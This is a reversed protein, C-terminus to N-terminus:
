KEFGFLTRWLFFNAFCQGPGLLVHYSSPPFQKFDELRLEIPLRCIVFLVIFHATYAPYM